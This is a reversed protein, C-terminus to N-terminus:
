DAQLLEHYRKAALVMFEKNLVRIIGLINQIDDLAKAEIAVMLRQRLEDWQAFSRSVSDKDEQAAFVGTVNYEDLFGVMAAENEIREIASMLEHLLKTVDDENRARHTSISLIRNIFTDVVGWRFKRAMRLMAAIHGLDGGLRMDDEHPLETFLVCFRSSADPMRDFRHLVPLYQKQTEASYFVPMSPSFLRTEIADLMARELCNPWGLQGSTRLQEKIRGWTWPNEDDPLALSFMRLATENAEVKVDQPVEGKMKFEERQQPTLTLILSQTYYRHKPPPSVLRAIKEAVEALKDPAAVLAPNIKDFLERLLKVVDDRIIKVSQWNQLPSPPTIEPSHLCILRHRDREVTAKAAFFGTEYLCWDWESTADSYLLFLWDAQRLAEHIQDNWDKGFPIDESLFCELRGVGYFSLEEKITEAAKRDKHKHSIFIIFKNDGPKIEPTM